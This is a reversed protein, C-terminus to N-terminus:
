AYLDLLGRATGPPRQGPLMPEPADLRASGRGRRPEGPEGGGMASGGQGAGADRAQVHAGGLQLGERALAQELQPLAAQLAERTPALDASFRVQAQAGEVGIWVQVPGMSGPNLHLEAEHQGDAAWVAVQAGLAQAFDPHELPPALQAV